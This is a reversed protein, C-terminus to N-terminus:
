RQIHELPNNMIKPRPCECNMINSRPNLIGGPENTFCICADNILYSVSKDPCTNRLGKNFIPSKIKAWIMQGGFMLLTEM